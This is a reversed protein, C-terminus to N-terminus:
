TFISFLYMCQSFQLKLPHIKHHTLQRLLAIKLVYCGVFVEDSFFTETVNELIKHSLKKAKTNEIVRLGVKGFEILHM